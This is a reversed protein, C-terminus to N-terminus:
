RAETGPEQALATATSVTLVPCSATRVVREAVSGLFIQSFGGRGHTGMVILQCRRATATEVITRAPSGDRVETTVRVGTTGTARSALEREADASMQKRVGGLEVWYAEPSAAVELPFAVVHLLHLAAGTGRALLVAYELAHDSTSSFDTPM